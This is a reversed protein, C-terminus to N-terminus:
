DGSARRLVPEGAEPLRLPLEQQQGARRQHLAVAESQKQGELAAWRQQMSQWEVWRRHPRVVNVYYGVAISVETIVAVALLWYAIWYTWVVGVM